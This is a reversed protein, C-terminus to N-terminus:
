CKFLGNELVFVNGLAGCLEDEFAQWCVKPTGEFYSNRVFRLLLKEEHQQYVGRSLVFIGAGKRIDEIQAPRKPAVNILYEVNVVSIYRLTIFWDDHWLNVLEHQLQYASYNSFPAEHLRISESQFGNDAPACNYFEYAGAGAEDARVTKLTRQFLKEVKEKLWVKFPTTQGEIVYMLRMAYISLEMVRARTDVFATLRHDDHATLLDQVESHLHQLVGCTKASVQDAYRAGPLFAELM